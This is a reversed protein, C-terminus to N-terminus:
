RTLSRAPSPTLGSSRVPFAHGGGPRGSAAGAQGLVVPEPLLALPRHHGLHVRDDALERRLRAAVPVPPLSVDLRHPLRPRRRRPVALGHAVPWQLLYFFLPVRGLTLLWRAAPAVGREFAALLLLAPGLTMLLYLLSPPYKQCNLFSLVTFTPSSQGAWPRPDGYVNLWRLALFGVVAGLGLAVLTSVRRRRHQVFLPGLAYGAAM